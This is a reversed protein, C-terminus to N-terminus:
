LQNTFAAVRTSSASVDPSGGPFAAVVRVGTLAGQAKPNNLLKTFAIVHSTDCGIIGVRLPKTPADAAVSLPCGFALLGVVIGSTFGAEASLGDAVAPISRRTQTRYVLVSSTEQRLASFRSSISQGPRMTFKEAPPMPRSSRRRNGTPVTKFTSSFVEEEAVGC